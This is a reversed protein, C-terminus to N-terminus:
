VSAEIERWLDTLRERQLSWDVKTRKAAKVALYDYYKSGIETDVFRGFEVPNATWRAHCSACACFANDLDCRTHAYRRSIIHATQLQEYRSEGCAICAGRARVIKSFLVDCKAKDGRARSVTM